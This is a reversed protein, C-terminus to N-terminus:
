GAQEPFSSPHFRDPSLLDYIEMAGPHDGLPPLVLPGITDEFGRGRWYPVMCDLLVVQRPQPWRGASIASECALCVPVPV